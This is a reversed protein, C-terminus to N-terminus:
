VAELAADVAEVVTARADELAVLPPRVDDRPLWGRAAVAAKTAPAFGHDHCHAFLSAFEGATGRPVVRDLGADLRRGVLTELAAVDVDGDATFPTVLPPAVAYQPLSM